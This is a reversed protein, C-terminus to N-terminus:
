PAGTQGLDLVILLTGPELATVDRNPYPSILTWAEAALGDRARPGHAVTARTSGYLRALTSRDYRGTQGFADSPLMASPSWAGPPHLLSSDTSLRTLVAAIDLRSVYMRYASARPGTPAFLRLYDPAEQWPGPPAQARTVAAGIWLLAAAVLIRAL